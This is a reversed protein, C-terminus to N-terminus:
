EEPVGFINDYEDASLHREVWRRAEKETMPIIKCGSTWGDLCDKKAYITRPGGEGYLFFEGRKKRYLDEDFRGFDGQYGESASGLKVATETDYRKGEITVKM